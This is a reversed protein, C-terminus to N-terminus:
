HKPKDLAWQVNVRTIFNCKGCNTRPLEAHIYCPNEFFNLHRWTRDHNAIDRLAVVSQVHFYRGSEFSSMVDLQKAELSFEVERIYWPEPIYLLKELQGEKLNVFM